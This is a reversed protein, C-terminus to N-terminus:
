RRRPARAEGGDGAVGQAYAIGAQLNGRTVIEGLDVQLTTLVQAVEPRIGTIVVQTGMLQAAKASQILVSAVHTDVLAVGTVDLIAIKAGSRGIGDLLTSLVLQARQSDMVGILPMAMVHESIPILPTSMQRLAEAQRRITDEAVRRATVDQWYGVLEVPNGELDRLLAIDDKVWLWRGDKHRFRYEQSLSEHEGITTLAQFLREADEPHVREAWLGPNATFEEPTFGFWRTVNDSIYTAGFDGSPIATYIIIPGASILRQLRAERVAVEYFDRELEAIRNQASELDTQTHDAHKGPPILTPM